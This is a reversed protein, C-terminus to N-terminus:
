LNPLAANEKVARIKRASAGIYVGNQPLDKTVVANAGVIVDDGISVKGLIRTGAFLKVNNGILANEHPPIM